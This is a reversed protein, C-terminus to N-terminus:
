SSSALSLLPRGRTSYNMDFHVQMKVTDLSPSTVNLLRGVCGQLLLVDAQFSSLLNRPGAIGRVQILKQVDEKTLTREVSFDNEPDLM